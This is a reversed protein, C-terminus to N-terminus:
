GRGRQISREISSVGQGNFTQLKPSLRQALRKVNLSKTIKVDNMGTKDPDGSDHTYRM